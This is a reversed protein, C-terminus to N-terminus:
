HVTFHSYDMLAMIVRMDDPSFWLAIPAFVPLIEDTGTESFVKRTLRENRVVLKKM